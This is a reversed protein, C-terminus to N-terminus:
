SGKEYRGRIQGEVVGRHKKYWHRFGWQVSYKKWNQGGVGTAMSGWVAAVNISYRKHGNADRIKSDTEFYFYKGCGSCKACFISVLGDNRVEVEIIIGEHNLKMHIHLDNCTASYVTLLTM